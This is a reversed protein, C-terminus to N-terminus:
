PAVSAAPACGVGMDGLSIDTRLQKFKDLRALPDDLAQQLVDCCIGKAVEQQGDDLHILDVGDAEGGEELLALEQAADHLYGGEDADWLRRAAM